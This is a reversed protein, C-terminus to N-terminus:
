TVPHRVPGDGETRRSDREEGLFKNDDIRDHVEAELAALRALRKGEAVEGAARRPLRAVLNEKSTSGRPYRPHRHNARTRQSEAVGFHLQERSTDCLGRRGILERLAPGHGSGHGCSLLQGVRGLLFDALEMEVGQWAFDREQ